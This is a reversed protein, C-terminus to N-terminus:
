STFWGPLPQAPGSGDVRRGARVLRCRTIWKGGQAGRVGHRARRNGVDGAHLLSLIPSELVHERHGPPLVPEWRVHTGVVSGVARRAPAHAGSIFRVGRPCTGSRRCARYVSVLVQTPNGTSAWGQVLPRIFFVYLLVSVVAAVGSRLVLQASCRGLIYVACASLFALVFVVVIVNHSLVTLAALAAVVAIMGVGGGRWTIAAMSVVTLLLPMSYFRNVQSLLVFPQSTNVVIALAAAYWLGRRRAAILFLLGSTLIACVLSPLRFGFENQPVLRLAARQFAYFVPLAKPLRGIQAAPVSFAQPDVQVMGLEVLTPVEDDVMPWTGIHYSAVCATIVMAFIVACWLLPGSSQGRQPSDAILPPETLAPIMENDTKWLWDGYQIHRRCSDLTDATRGIKEETSVRSRGLNDAARVRECLCRVTGRDTTWSQAEGNAAHRTLRRLYAVVSSSDILM